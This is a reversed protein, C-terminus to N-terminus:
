RSLYRGGITILIINYETYMRINFVTSMDNYLLIFQLPIVPILPIKTARLSNHYQVGAINDRACM